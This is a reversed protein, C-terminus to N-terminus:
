SHLQSCVCISPLHGLEAQQLKIYLVVCNTFVEGHENSHMITNMSASKQKICEQKVNRQKEDMSGAEITFPPERKGNNLINPHNTMITSISQIEKNSDLNGLNSPGNSYYQRTLQPLRPLLLSVCGDNQRVCCNKKSLM